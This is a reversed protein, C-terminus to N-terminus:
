ATVATSLAPFEADSGTVNFMSVSAGVMVLAGSRAGFPLPQYLASTFTVNVHPSANDPMTDHVPECVKPSPAPWDTVPVADSAAPLAAWLVTSLMFTSLVSGVILPAGVVGGFAFPQYRPSTVTCQVHPSASEPISPSHGTSETMVPSPAFRPAVADTPSRAPLVADAVTEPMLISRVGVTVVESAGAPHLFVATVTCKEAASLRAPTLLLKEFTSPPEAVAPDVTTTPTSPM